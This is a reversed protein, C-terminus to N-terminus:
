PLSQGLLGLDPAEALELGDAAAEAAVDEGASIQDVVAPAVGALRLM